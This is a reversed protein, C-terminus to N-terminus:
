QKPLAWIRGCVCEVAGTMPQAIFVRGCKPCVIRDYQGSAPPKSPDPGQSMALKRVLYVPASEQVIKDLVPGPLDLMDAPFVFRGTYANEDESYGFKVSVSTCDNPFEIGFFHIGPAPNPLAMAVKNAIEHVRSHVRRTHSMLIAIDVQSVREPASSGLGECTDREDIGQAWRKWQTQLAARLDEVWGNVLGRLVPDKYGNTMACAERAMLLPPIAHELHRLAEATAENLNPM